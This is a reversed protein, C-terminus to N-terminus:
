GKRALCPSDLSSAMARAADVASRRGHFQRMASCGKRWHACARTKRPVPVRARRRCARALRDLGSRPIACRKGPSINLTGSDDAFQGPPTRWAHWQVMQRRATQARGGRAASLSICPVAQAPRTPSSGSTFLSGATGARRMAGSDGAAQSSSRVKVSGGLGQVPRDGRLPWHRQAVGRICM